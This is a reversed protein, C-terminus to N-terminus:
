GQENGDGFHRSEECLWQFGSVACRGFFQSCPSKVIVLHFKHRVTSATPFKERTTRSFRKRDVSNHSGHGLPHQSIYLWMFENETNDGTSPTQSNPHSGATPIGLLSSHTKWLCINRLRCSSKTLVARTRSIFQTCFFHYQEAVMKLHQIGSFNKNELPLAKILGCFAAGSAQQGM